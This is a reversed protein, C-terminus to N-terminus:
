KNFVYSGPAAGLDVDSTPALAPIQKGTSHKKLWNQWFVWWSGQETLAEAQWLNPDNYTKHRITEPLYQYSRHAHGPESVIGANHGGSALVFEIPAETLVHIKYVSHWPSVHDKATGVVFMPVRIDNLAIAHGHVEYHGKALDNHLFLHKLYESHM